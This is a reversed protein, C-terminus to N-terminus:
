RGACRAPRGEFRRREAARGRRAASGRTRLPGGGVASAASALRRSARGSRVIRDLYLFREFREGFWAYNASDYSAGPAVAVAFAVVEGHHEVVVSRFALSLIYDLRQEDLESLERVSAHNLALLQPRDAATVERLTM